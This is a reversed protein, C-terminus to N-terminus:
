ILMARPRGALDHALRPDLAEAKLLDGVAEAQGSGIEIAALGGPAILRSLEPALRKYEALGQEGAFLAVAPEYEAVGRGM